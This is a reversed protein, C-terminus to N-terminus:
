SRPKKQMISERVSDDKFLAFLKRVKERSPIQFELSEKEPADKCLLAEELTRKADESRGALYELGSLEIKNRFRHQAFERKGRIIADLSGYGEMFPLGYKLVAAMMKQAESTPDQGRPFHWDFPKGEPMVYGIIRTFVGM